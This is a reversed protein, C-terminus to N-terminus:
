CASFLPSSIFNRAFRFTLRAKYLPIQLLPTPMLTPNFYPRSLIAAIITPTQSTFYSQSFNFRLPPLFFCRYLHSIASSKYILEAPHSTLPRTAPPTITAGGNRSSNGSSAVGTEQHPIVSMFLVIIYIFLLLFCWLVNLGLEQFKIVM